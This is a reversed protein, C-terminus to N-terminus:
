ENVIAQAEEVTFGLRFLKCNPDDKFVLQYRETVEGTEDDKIEKIKHTDDEVGQEGEELKHDIMWKQVGDLFTQLYEKTREPWGELAIMVDKKSNWHKPEGKM